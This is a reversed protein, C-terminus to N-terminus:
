KPIAEIMSNAVSLGVVILIVGITISMLCDFLRQTLAHNRVPMLNYQLEFFENSM